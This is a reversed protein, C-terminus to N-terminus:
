RCYPADTAAWTFVQEYQQAALDWSADRAMGRRQIGRFDDRHDRYTKLALHLTTGLGHANCETYTWGTGVGGPAAFPDFDIVTDKLGGTKHAVPVAGYRMAYLQNLGCPEFRSPMLVIDAAATLRHSLPVNFGVWGRAKDRFEGELWRMGDELGKDGTGLCVLQMNEHRLMGGVAELLIDAGKQPDLRGIFAVLPIDPNVPLGLEQQLAKKCAAKGEVFDQDSYNAPLHPDSAPDWEETDIGNVIGNLVFGRGSLLGEMGCGGLWGKIEDAYGPSVTVVRDATIIGAKMHNVARGEEEYAGQRQHPPYQWELAGYWDGPLGLGGYTRPSFVGQHKLNHIALVSRAASYVGYPRYKAALYVPALSTHWDNAVFICEQGYLGAEGLPLVLPAELAALTLLTFRFQNDGYVGHADAYIGGPRPFAPHDVFVYDVGRSVHHFYGVEAGLVDHRKGTDFAEPYNAYRPVVVMVRHGREALAKPLAGMVDGLGGTKSWPACESTIFVINRLVEARNPTPHDLVVHTDAEAAGKDFGPKGVNEFGHLKPGDLQTVTIKSPQTTQKDKADTTVTPAGASTNKDAPSAKAPRLRTVTAQKRGGPAIKSGSPPHRAHLHM